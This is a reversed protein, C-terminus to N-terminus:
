FIYFTALTIYQTILFIIKYITYFLLFCYYVWFPVGTNITGLIYRVTLWVPVAEPVINVEKSEIVRQRERVRM